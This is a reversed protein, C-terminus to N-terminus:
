DKLDDFSVENTIAFDLVFDVVKKNLIQMKLNEKTEILKKVEEVDRNLRAAEQTALQEIDYDEVEINENEIIKNRILEWQVNRVAMPRFEHKISDLNMNKAAEGYQSKFNDMLFQTANEVFPEPAPVDNDNILKAVIQDEVAARSEKDWKEQLAFQVDDKFDDVNEFKGNSYKSVFEDNLEAPILKQIDNITVSYNHQHTEGEEHQHEDHPTDHEFVYEVVEGTKRGVLIEVLKKDIRENNLYVHDEFPDISTDPEKTDNILTQFSLGVVHNEDDVISTDEFTGQSNLIKVIEEEVEEDTVAHVPEDITLGKYDNLTIEPYVAYSFNFKVVGNNMDINILQPRSILNIKETEIVKEFSEQAADELAQEQILAGFQKKAIHFPVKGKRFGPVNIKNKVKNYAQNFYSQFAEDELIIELEQIGNETKLIKSELINV